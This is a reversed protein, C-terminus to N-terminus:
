LNVITATAGSKEGKLPAGITPTINAGSGTSTTITTVSHSANPFDDGPTILRISVVNGSANTIIRAAANIVGNSVRITDNNSYSGGPNSITFHTVANTFFRVTSNSASSNSLIVKNKLNDKNQVTATVVPTHYVHINQILTRIKKKLTMETDSEISAVQVIDYKSSDSVGTLLIFDNEAYDTTFTTNSGDLLKNGKPGTQITGARSYVTNVTANAMLGFNQFVLEGGKFKPNSSMNSVTLFEHNDNTTTIEATNASFRAININFKLDRDPLPKLEADSSPLYFKGDGEGSTGSYVRNSNLIFENQVAGALVFDNDDFKVAFGYFVDPELVIPTEFKFNTAISADAFASIAGWETRAFENQLVNTFSPQDDKFPCIYISVGPFEVGSNNELGPPKNRFYLDISTLFVYPAGFVSDKKIIFSQIYNFNM